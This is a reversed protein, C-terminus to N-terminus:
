LVRLHLVHLLLVLQRLLLIVLLHIVQALLPARIQSGEANELLVLQPLETLHVVRLLLLDEYAIQLLTFELTENVLLVLLQGLQCLSCGLLLYNGISCLDFVAALLTAVSGGHSGLLIAGALAEFLQSVPTDRM